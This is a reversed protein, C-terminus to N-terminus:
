WHEHAESMNEQQGRFGNIAGAASLIASEFGNPCDVYLHHGAGPLIHQSIPSNHGRKKLNEAAIKGGMPDMWDHSGYLFTVPINSKLEAIRNVLPDKAYAGFNLLQRLSHEGSGKAITIGHMYTLIAEKATCGELKMTPSNFRGNIVKEVLRKSWPGAARALSQPTAGQEWLFRAFKWGFSLKVSPDFPPKEPYGVPSALVLHRVDNSNHKRLMYATGLYGGLSHGVLVIDKAGVEKRWQEFSDLFFDEAKSVTNANRPWKPRSSLGMGMWDPILVRRVPVNEENSRKMVKIANPLFQVAGAAFGPLIVIDVGGEKAAKASEVSLHHVFAKQGDFQVQVDCQTVSVEGKTDLSSHIDEVVEKEAELIVEPRKRRGQGFGWVRYYSSGGYSFINMWSKGSGGGSSNSERVMSNEDANITAALAQRLGSRPPASSNAPLTQVATAM